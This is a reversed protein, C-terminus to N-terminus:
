FSITRCNMSEMIEFILIKRALCKLDDVIGMIIIWGDPLHCQMGRKAGYFLYFPGECLVHNPCWFRWATWWWRWWIHLLLSFGFGLVGGRRGSWFVDTDGRGVLGVVLVFLRAPAPFFPRLYYNELAICGYSRTKPASRAPSFLSPSLPSRASM